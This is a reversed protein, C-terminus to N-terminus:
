QATNMRVPQAQVPKAPRLPQVAPRDSGMLKQMELRVTKQYYNRIDLISKHAVKALDRAKQLEAKYQGEAQGCVYQEAVKLQAVVASAQQDLLRIKEDLIVLTADLAAPDKGQQRAKTAVAKASTSIRQYTQVHQPYNQNYVGLSKSVRAEVVKCRQDVRNQTNEKVNEKVQQVNEKVQERREPANGMREMRNTTNMQAAVPTVVVTFLGACLLAAVYKKM